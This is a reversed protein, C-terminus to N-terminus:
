GDELTVHGVGLAAVSAGLIIEVRAEALAAEIVPRPGPGLEPGVVRARDILLIRLSEGREDGGHVSVRDRLELALEIGTFGAGIVAVTPSARDWVIEALRRDFEIAERQNDIAHAEEAGPVPPRRM